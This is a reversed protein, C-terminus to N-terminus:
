TSNALVVKFGMNALAPRIYGHSSKVLVDIPSYCFAAVLPNGQMVGQDYMWGFWEITCSSCLTVSPFEAARYVHLAKLNLGCCICRATM